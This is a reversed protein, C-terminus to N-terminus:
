TTESKSYISLSLYKKGHTEYSTVVRYDFDLAVLSKKCYKYYM